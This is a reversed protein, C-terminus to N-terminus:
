KEFYKDLIFIGQTELLILAHELRIAQGIVSLGIISNKYGGKAAKILEIQLSLLEKKSVRVARLFGMKKLTTVRKNYEELLLKRISLFKEPLDVKVWETKKEMVYPQVDQSQETRIEVAEIAANKKVEEIKESSFGPSATLGLIRQNEAEELYKKAVFPYAYAGVAHHIEDIVLLSFNKLNLREEKLDNEITQPTAFLIKKNQYLAVRETPKTEGTVVVMEEEPINLFEKFSKYHQNTLPKTPALVLIKSEPFKELRHATLVAAIPTKGLGTPLVVLTNKNVASSLISEQYLRSEIKEPKILRHKVYEM